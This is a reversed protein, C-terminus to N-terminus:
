FDLTGSLLAILVALSLLFWLAWAGVTLVIGVVMAVTQDDMTRAAYLSLGFAVAAALAGLFGGVVCVSIVVLALLTVSTIKVWTPLPPAYSVDAGNVRVRPLIDTFNSRLQVAYTQMDGGQLQAERYSPFGLKYRTKVREGRYFLQNGGIFTLKIEASDSGGLPVPFVNSM